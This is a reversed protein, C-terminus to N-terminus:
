GWMRVAPGGGDGFRSNEDGGGNASASVRVRGCGGDGGGGGYGGVFCMRTLLGGGASGSQVIVGWTSLWPPQIALM